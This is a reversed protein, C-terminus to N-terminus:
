RIKDLMALLDKNTLEKDVNIFGPYSLTKGAVSVSPKIKMTITTSKVSDTSIFDRLAQLNAPESILPYINQQIRVPIITVGGGPEVKIEQDISGKNLQQDKIFVEYDFAKIGALESGSNTIKFNLVGELPVNQQMFALGLNKARDLNLGNKGVLKAVATHAIYLSDPSLIEYTCNRLANLEEAQDKLNCSFLFLLFVLLINKM